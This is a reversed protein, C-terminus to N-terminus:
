RNMWQRFPELSPNRYGGLWAVGLVLVAAFAIVIVIVIGAEILRPQSDTAFLWVSAPAPPDAAFDREMGFMTVTHAEHKPMVSYLCWGLGYLSQLVLLCIAAVTAISMAGKLFAAPFSQQSQYPAM